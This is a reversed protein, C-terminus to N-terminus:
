KTHFPPEIAGHPEQRLRGERIELELQQFLEGRSLGERSARLLLAPLHCEGREQRIELVWRQLRGMPEKQLAEGAPADPSWSLAPWTAALSHPGFFSAAVPYRDTRRQSLLKENGEFRREGPFCSTAYLDRNLRMVWSATNLTGSAAAAEVVWTAKALGAILSNRELFNGAWPPTGRPFPSILAGGSGLIRKRLERNGRPYDVDIGCGLIALTRLGHRVALDHAHADVGRAFGSLIVLRTSRLAELTREIQELSRREPHRTGVIALGLEPLDEFLGLPPVESEVEIFDPVPADELIQFAPIARSILTTISM